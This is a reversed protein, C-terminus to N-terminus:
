PVLVCINCSTQCLGEDVVELHIDQVLVCTCVSLLFQVTDHLDQRPLVAPFLVNDCLRVHCVHPGHFVGAHPAHFDHLHVHDRRRVRSDRPIHVRIVHRVHDRHRNYYLFLDTSVIALSFFLTMVSMFFSIMRMMSGLTFIVMFSLTFRCALAVSMYSSMSMM